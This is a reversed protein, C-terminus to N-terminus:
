PTSAPTPTSGCSPRRTRFSTRWCWRPPRTRSNAPIAVSSVNSINSINGISPVATRTAPPYTGDAVRNAVAGPGYTFFAAIEGGAYLQEVAEQSTPYTAGGQWLSRELANLRPWLRDAVRAYRQEDFPGALVSPDGATGYLFTRVVM